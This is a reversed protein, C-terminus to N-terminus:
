LMSGINITEMLLTQSLQMAYINLKRSDQLYEMPIVPLYSVTHSNWDEITSSSSASGFMQDRPVLNALAHIIDSTVILSGEGSSPPASILSNGVANDMASCFRQLRSIESVNGTNSQQVVDSLASAAERLATLKELLPEQPSSHVKAAIFSRVARTFEMPFSMMSGFSAEMDLFQTLTQHLRGVALVSRESLAKQLDSRVMQLTQSLDDQGATSGMMSILSTLGRIFEVFEDNVAVLLEVLTSELEETWGGVWGWYLLDLAEDLFSVYAYVPSTCLFSSLVNRENNDGVNVELCYFGFSFSSLVCYNKRFLHQYPDFLICHASQVASFPTYLLILSRETVLNELVPSSIPCDVNVCLHQPHLPGETSLEGIQEFIERTYCGSNSEFLITVMDFPVGYAVAIELLRGLDGKRDDECQYPFCSLLLSQLYEMDNVTDNSSDYIEQGLVHLYKFITRRDLRLIENFDM